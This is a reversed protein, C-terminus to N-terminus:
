GVGGLAATSIWRSFSWSAASRVIGGLIAAATLSMAVPISSVLRRRQSVTSGVWATITSREATLACSATSSGSEGAARSWSRTASSLMRCDSAAIASRSGTLASRVGFCITCHSAARM